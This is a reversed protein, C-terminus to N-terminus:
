FGALCRPIGAQRYTTKKPTYLQITINKYHFIRSAFDLRINTQLCTGSIKSQNSSWRDNRNWDAWWRRSWWHFLWNSQQRQRNKPTGLPHLLGATDTSYISLKWRAQAKRQKSQLNNQSCLDYRWLPNQTRSSSHCCGSSHWWLASVATRLSVKHGLGQVWLLQLTKWIRRIATYQQNMYIRCFVTSVKPFIYCLLRTFDAFLKHSSCNYFFLM